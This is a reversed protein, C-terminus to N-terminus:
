YIDSCSIISRMNFEGAVFVSIVYAVSLLGLMKELCQSIVVSSVNSPASPDNADRRAHMETAM